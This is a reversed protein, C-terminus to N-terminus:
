AGVSGRARHLSQLTTKELVSLKLGFADALVLCVIRWRVPDVTALTAICAWGSTLACDVTARRVYAPMREALSPKREVGPMAAGFMSGFLDEFSSPKPPRSPEPPREHAAALALMTCAFDAAHHALAEEVGKAKFAEALAEVDSACALPALFAVAAGAERSLGHHSANALYGSPIVTLDSAMSLRKPHDFQVRPRRGFRGHRAVFPNQRVGRNSSAARRVSTIGESGAHAELREALARPLSVSVTRRESAMKTSREVAKPAQM